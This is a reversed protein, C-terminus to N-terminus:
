VMMTSTLHQFTHEFSLSISKPTWIFVQVNELYFLFINQQDFKKKILFFSIGSNNSEKSLSVKSCDQQLSPAASVRSQLSM